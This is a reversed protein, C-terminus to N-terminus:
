PLSIRQISQAKGTDREITILVGSFRLNENAVDFRSPTQNLFRHLANPIKMGIVSDHAGTMGADTIYATGKPLIREDATQVHTHTGIIASAKGDLYWGLAIKEATAEAHFDVIILHTEQKVQKILADAMRFPCRIPYMFTRGQLNIVAIRTDDLLRAIYVGKGPNEDPYNAPRLVRPEEKFLENIKRNEWTHNGGTIVDVGLDFFRRAIKDTIGKGNNNANEGNAIVFDARYQKKLTPLLRSLIECGPQGVVDAVFLVTLLHNSSM